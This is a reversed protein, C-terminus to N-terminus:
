WNIRRVEVNLLILLFSAWAMSLHMSVCPLV